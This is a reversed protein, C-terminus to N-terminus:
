PPALHEGGDKTAVTDKQVESGIIHQWPEPSGIAATSTALMLQLCMLRFM